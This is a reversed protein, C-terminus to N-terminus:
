LPLVFYFGDRDSKAPLPHVAFGLSLKLQHNPRDYRSSHSRVQYCGAQRSHEILTQQLRAGIGQRRMPEAVGFALVKAERLAQNGLRVADLDEEVGIEQIVYRLFGVPQGDIHAVLLISELHWDGQIAVWDSQGLQEILTSLSPWQPHDSNWVSITLGDM